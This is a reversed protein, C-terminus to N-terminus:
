PAVSMVDDMPGVAADGGEDVQDKEAPLMVGGDVVAFMRGISSSDSGNIRTRDVRYVSSQRAVLRYGTFALSTRFRILHLPQQWTSRWRPEWLNM